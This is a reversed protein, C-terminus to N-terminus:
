QSLLFLATFPLLDENKLLRPSFIMETTTAIRMHSTTVFLLSGTTQLCCTLM